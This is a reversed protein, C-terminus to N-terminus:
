CCRKPAAVRRIPSTRDIKSTYALGKSNGRARLVRRRHKFRGVEARASELKWGALKAPPSRATANEPHPGTAAELQAGKAASTQEAGKTLFLNQPCGLGRCLHQARRAAREASWSRLLAGVPRRPCRARQTIQRGCCTCPPLGSLSYSPHGRMSRRIRVASCVLPAFPAYGVLSLLRQM